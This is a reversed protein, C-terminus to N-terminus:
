VFHPRTPSPVPGTLRQQNTEVVFASPKGTWAAHSTASTDVEDCSCSTRWPPPWRDAGGPRRASAQVGTCVWGHGEAHGGPM